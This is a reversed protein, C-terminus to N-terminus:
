KMFKKKFFNAEDLGTFFIKDFPLKVLEQSQKADGSLFSIFDANFSAFIKELIENTNLTHESGKVIACNGGAIAGILPLLALQFPYNFPAIILCLGLPDYQIYSQSPLLYVPSSVRKPKSWSNLKSIFLDIENLLIGMESFFSEDKSKKLDAFLAAYVEDELELISKKLLRLQKLRFDVPKTKQSSFFTKQNSFLLNINVEKM